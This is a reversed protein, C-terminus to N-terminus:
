ASSCRNKVDGDPSNLAARLVDFAPAEPPVQHLLQDYDTRALGIIVLMYSGELGIHRTQVSDNSRHWIDSRFSPQNFVCRPVKGWPVGTNQTLKKRLPNCPPFVCNLFCM